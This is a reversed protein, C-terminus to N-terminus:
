SLVRNGIQALITAKEEAPTRGDMFIRQAGLSGDNFHGILTENMPNNFWTLYKGSEHVILEVQVEIEYDDPAPELCTFDGRLSTYGQNTCFAALEEILKESLLM